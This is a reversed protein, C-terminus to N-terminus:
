NQIKYTGLTEIPYKSHEISQDQRNKSHDLNTPIVTNTDRIPLLFSLISVLLDEVSPANELSRWIVVERETPIQLELKATLTIKSIEGTGLITASRCQNELIRQQLQSPERDRSLFISTNIISESCDQAKNEQKTASEKFFSSPPACDGQSLQLGFARLFYEISLKDVAEQRKLIRSITQLSLGTLQNLQERTFRLGFNHESEALLMAQQLKQWGQTTLIVGRGRKSKPTQKNSM